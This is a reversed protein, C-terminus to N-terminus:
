TNVDPGLNRPASYTGDSFIDVVYIDTKEYGGLMDSIFYLKDEQKNLVPHGTQYNNSNFPMQFVKWDGADNQKACYM